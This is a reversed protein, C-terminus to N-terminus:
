KTYKSQLHKPLDKYKPSVNKIQPQISNLNKILDKISLKKLDKIKDFENLLIKGQNVAEDILDQKLNKIDEVKDEDEDKMEKKEEKQAEELKKIAEDEKKETEDSDKVEEKSEMKMKMEKIEKEMEEMKMKMELYDDNMKMDEKKSEDNKMKTEKEKSEDENKIKLKLNYNEEILNLNKIYLSEIQDMTKNTKNNNINTYINQLKIKYEKYIPVIQKSLYTKPSENSNQIYGRDEIIDDILGLKLCEDATFWKNKGEVFLENIDMKIKPKVLEKISNLYVKLQNKLNEDPKPNQSFPLHFMKSGWRYSLRNDGYLSILAACSAAEGYVINSTPTKMNMLTHIIPFMGDVDGGPSNIMVLIEEKNMKDLTELEKSFQYGHIGHEGNISPDDISIQGDLFITPTPTDINTTYKFEM